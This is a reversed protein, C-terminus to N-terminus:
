RGSGADTSLLPKALLTRRACEVYPLSLRCIAMSGEPTAELDMIPSSNQRM